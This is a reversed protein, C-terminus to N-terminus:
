KDGETLHAVLWPGVTVIREEVRWPGQATSRNLRRIELEARERMRYTGIMAYGDSARVVRYEARLVKTHEGARGERAWADPTLVFGCDSCYWEGDDCNERWADRPCECPENRKRDNEAM